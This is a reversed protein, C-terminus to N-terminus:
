QWTGQDLNIVPVSVGALLKQTATQALVVAPVSDQLMYTIREAPYAPDLPVYAGGAKLIALLGVVMEAGREVCIGVRSDPQVGHKRLAHALRNAQENLERYSLKKGEHIVALADPTSAVQAEFLGHIT